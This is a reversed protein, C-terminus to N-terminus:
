TTITGKKEGKNKEFTPLILPIEKILINHVTKKYSDVQKKYYYM